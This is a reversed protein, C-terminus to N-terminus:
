SASEAAIEQVASRAADADNEACCWRLFQYPVSLFHAASGPDALQANLARFVKSRTASDLDLAKLLSLVGNFALSKAKPDTAEGPKLDIEPLVPL